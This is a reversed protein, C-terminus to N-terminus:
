EEPQWYGLVGKPKQGPRLSMFTIQGHLRYVAVGKGDQIWQHVLDWARHQRALDALAFETYKKPSPM